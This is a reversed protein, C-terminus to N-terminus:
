LRINTAVLLPGIFDEAEFWYAVGPPLIMHMWTYPVEGKRRPEPPLVVVKGEFNLVLKKYRDDELFSLPYDVARWNCEPNIYEVWITYKKSRDLGLPLDLEGTFWM